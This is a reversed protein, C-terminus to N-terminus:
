GLEKECADRAKDAAALFDAAAMILDFPDKTNEVRALIAKASSKLEKLAKVCELEEPAYPKDRPQLPGSGAARSILPKHVTANELYHEFGHVNLQSIHDIRADRYTSADWGSPGFPRVAPIPDLTHRFNWFTNFFAGPMKPRPPCVVSDYVRLGDIRDELLRGVNALMFAAEFPFGKGAMASGGGHLGMMALSDHLVATGLSHALFTIRLTSDSRAEEIAKTIRDMVVIRINKAVLDFYEYLLVDVVHSWFFQEQKEGDLKALWSTIPPAHKIREDVITKEVASAQENWKRLLVRFPEDYTIPVIQVQSSFRNTDLDFGHYFSAIEDLKTTIDDCWSDEDGTGDNHIGMGHVVFLLNAM